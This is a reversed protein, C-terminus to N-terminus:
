KKFGSFLSALFDTIKNVLLSLSNLQAQQSALQTDQAKDTDSEVPVPAPTPAPAPAPTPTPAPAVVPAHWGYKKFQTLTGYFTDCDVRGAVGSVSGDSTYQHIAYFPWRKVAVTGGDSVTYDAVWLGAGTARTMTWAIYNECSRNMYILPTVGLKSKVRNIFTACWQDDAATPKSSLEWDLVLVDNEEIPSCAKIFLDAEITPEGRGAFHYMGVALGAAKANKYNWAAKPDVFTLSETFKIIAFSIGAAKVKAWDLTGADNQHHSVDIGKITAM